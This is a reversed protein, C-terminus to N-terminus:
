NGSTVRLRLVAAASGSGVARADHSVSPLKPKQVVRRDGARAQVDSPLGCDAVDEAIVDRSPVFLLESAWSELCCRM